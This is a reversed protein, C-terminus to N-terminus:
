QIIYFKLFITYLIYEIIRQTYMLTFILYLSDKFREIGETKKM